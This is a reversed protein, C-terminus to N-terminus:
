SLVQLKAFKLMIRREPDDVDKFYITAVRNGAGGEVKKVIGEGFKLHLVKAGEKVMDPPSVKFDVGDVVLNKKELMKVPRFNGSVGSLQQASSQPVAHLQTKIMSLEDLFRSPECYTLKGFRYRSNAYSLTLHTEARTIAVYFLRREEEIGDPVDYSMWSPFLKEEVGTVFVSKFELGKASHVSMLTVVESDQSEKDADTLLMITQLYTALSKDSTTDEDPTAEDNEVFEKVGDLLANLNEVRALADISNEKKYEVLVGSQRAIMMALDYANLETLKKIFVQIMKTFDTVAKKSKVQPIDSQLVDWMSIDNDVAIQRLGEITADGIGRRPFNIIRKLSEDDYPNVSLKFYALLDKVEKRQYFSMGGYVRYSINYRRLYEEFIRSQANTRYLIAIESNRLHNRNKQELIADVVRKAEENDNLARLLIIGPGEARDTWITKKIQKRNHSIVENAAQVIADISRYNQELKYTKLMPFDTEFNLINEITAGRFAYISQADDGVVCVNYKSGNYKVLKKIIGYQLTNTDQFEDVLVYAFRRRYKDLVEPFDNLLIYLQLLLDDFDMAGAKKMRAAYRKYIEAFHPLGLVADQDRLTANSVYEEATIIQSKAGSIRSLINGAAYTNKDLGLDKVITNILSKADDTDYITFNSPYGILPADVRLLRAFISHFTGAWVMNATTGVVKEIRGKMERAAKNTFTLALISRPNVGQQILYAIRYTLVRTKGSGPGAVVLVPGNIDTVAQRQIDNLGDLYDSM